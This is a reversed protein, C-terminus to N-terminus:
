HFLSDRSMIHDHIFPHMQMLDIQGIWEARGLLEFRTHHVHISTTITSIIILVVICTTIITIIALVPAHIVICVRLGTRAAVALAIRTAALPLQLAIILPPTNICAILNLLHPVDICPRTMVMRVSIIIIIIAALGVATALAPWAEIAETVFVHIVARTRVRTTVVTVVGAGPTTARPQRLDVLPPHPHPHPHPHPLHPTVLVVVLKLNLTLPRALVVGIRQRTSTTM